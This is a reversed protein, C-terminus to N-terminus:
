ILKRQKLKVALKYFPLFLLRPQLVKIGNVTPNYNDTKVFKFDEGYDQMFYFWPILAEKKLSYTESKLLKELTDIDWAHIGWNTDLWPTDGM